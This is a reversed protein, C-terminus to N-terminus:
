PRAVEGGQGQEVDADEGDGGDHGDEAAVGLFPQPQEPAVPQGAVQHVAVQGAVGVVAELGAAVEVVGGLAEGLVDLGEGDGRQREDEDQEVRGDGQAGEGADQPRDGGPQHQRRHQVGDAARQGGDQQPPPEDPQVDLLQAPLGVQAVLQDADALLG